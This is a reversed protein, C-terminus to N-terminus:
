RVASVWISSTSQTQRSSERESNGVGGVWLNLCSHHRVVPTILHRRLFQHWEEAVISGSGRM